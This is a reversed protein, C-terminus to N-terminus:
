VFCKFSVDEDLGSERLRRSVISDKDEGYEGEYQNNYSEVFHKMELAADPELKQLQRRRNNKNIAQKCCDRLNTPEASRKNSRNDRRRLERDSVFVEVFDDFSDGNGDEDNEASANM